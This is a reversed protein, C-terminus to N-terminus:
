TAMSPHINNTSATNRLGVLELIKGAVAPPYGRTSMERVVRLADDREGAALFARTMAEYTSPERKGSGITDYIATAKEINGELAWGHILTNAIYATMEVGRREMDRLVVETEKVNHNAVMAEFFAQYLCAQPRVRTDNLVDNFIKRAGEMDHLSCGRAHILSAYHVADPRQGSKRITDLVREASAMNIPELTAYSDILLKFTHSTSPINRSTMREYYALVKSRDRKTTLFFQMLSNYPAPRPKYNPMSEMEEFLEEAYREDSVRCLANVITGYTVSTPRIGLQRMEHFYFLCDDIRRAKGLKGILANYLFSSPEVGDTKARRFIKVAETAEDFTKTSEKLTTIYLGYTNASPTAGMNSLERHYQMAQDREGVTLCAGIMADLISTWGQKVLRYNPLYPIDARAKELLERTLGVRHERAAASILKAYTVYRLHRGSRHANKMAMLANELRSSGPRNTNRELEDVIFSSAKFDTSANYPDITDEFTSTPSIPTLPQSTSFRPPEVLSQGIRYQYDQWQQLLNSRGYLGDSGGVKTLTKEIMDSTRRDIPYGKTTITEFLQAFRSLSPLEPATKANLINDAEIHTLLIVDEFSLQSISEPGLGALVQEAVPTVLGGNEVMSWMLDMSGQASPVIAKQRMFRGLYEIGEDIAEMTSERDEAHSVALRIRGFVVRALELAEEIHGNGLLSALYMTSPEVLSNSFYTENSLLTDWYTTASRVDGLRLHLAMMAMAAEFHDPTSPTLQVFADTATTAEGSDAAAVCVKTLTQHQVLSSMGASEAWQLAERFSGRALLGAVFAEPVVLDELNRLRAEPEPLVRYSSQAKEYFRNAGELNNCMIYAKILTAYAQDDRRNMVSLQGGNALIALSKYENYCEIVSEMEGSGAFGAMMSTFIDASPTVGNAEMHVFANIMHSTPGNEACLAILREYTALPFVHRITANKSMEFVRIALDYSDDEALIEHETENSALIFRGTSDLGAYRGRRDSLLRKMRQVQLARSVLLDILTSFTATNPQVQRHHMDAYVNLAKVVTQHAVPTMKIAATLLANYADATPRVGARLMAEFVAPIEAYAGDTQLKGIHDLFAESQSDSVATATTGDHTQTLDSDSSELIASSPARTEINLWTPDDVTSNPRAKTTSLAPSAQPEVTLDKLLTRSSASKNTIDDQSLVVAEIPTEEVKKIVDVVSTSNSRGLHKRGEEPVELRLNEVRKEEAQAKAKGKVDPITAPAKWEIRRAFQFQSWENVVDGGQQQQQQWAAYYAALGGDTHALGNSSTTRTGVGASDSSTSFAHHTQSTGAKSFRNAPHHAFPPFSTASPFSQSAAVFTQAYGHTFSKAFTQRALHTFPKFVM